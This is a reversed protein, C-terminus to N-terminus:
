GFRGHVDDFGQQGVRGRDGGQSSLDVCMRLQAVLLLAGAVQHGGLEGFPADSM